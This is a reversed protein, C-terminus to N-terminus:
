QKVPHLQVQPCALSRCIQRGILTNSLVSATIGPQHLQQKMVASIQKDGARPRSGLRGVQLSDPVLLGPSGPAGIIRQVNIRFHIVPRRFHAVQSLQMFREDAVDAAQGNVAPLRGLHIVAGSAPDGMM